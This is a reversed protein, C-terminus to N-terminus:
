FANIKKARPWVHATEKPFFDPIGRLQAAGFYDECELKVPVKLSFGSFIVFQVIM